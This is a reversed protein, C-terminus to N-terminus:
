HSRGEFFYKKQRVSVEVLPRGCKEFVEVQTSSPSFAYDFQFKREFVNREKTKERDTLQFYAPDIAIVSGETTDDDFSNNSNSEIETRNFPRIRVATVVRDHPSFINNSGVISAKHSKKESDM